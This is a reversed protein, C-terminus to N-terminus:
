IRMTLGFFRNVHMLSIGGGGGGSQINVGRNDYTKFIDISKM